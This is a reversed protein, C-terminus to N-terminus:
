WDVDDLVTNWFSQLLETAACDFKRSVRVLPNLVRLFVCHCDGPFVMCPFLCLLRSRQGFCRTQGHCKTGCSGFDDQRTGSDQRSGDTVHLQQTSRVQTRLIIFMHICMRSDGCAEQFCVRIVRRVCKNDELRRDQESMWLVATRHAVSVSIPVAVEVCTVGRQFM